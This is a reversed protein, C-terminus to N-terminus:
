ARDVVVVVVVRARPGRAQRAAVVVLAAAAAVAAAVTAAEVPAVGMPAEPVAGVVLGLVAPTPLAQVVTLEQIVRAVQAALELHAAMASTAGKLDQVPQDMRGPTAAVQAARAVPPHNVEVAVAVAV